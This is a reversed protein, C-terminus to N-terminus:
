KENDFNGAGGTIEDGYRATDTFEGTWPDMIKFRRPSVKKLAAVWHYNQVELLLFESKEELAKQM